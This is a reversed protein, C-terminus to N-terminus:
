WRLTDGSVRPSLKEYVKANYCNVWDIEKESLLDPDIMKKQIPVFTLPEFGLYKKDNFHNPTEKPVVLLLNEIRIGFSGDEYFGPENSVIMNEVLATPNHRPSIGQPGEHVNLCAGVGTRRTFILLILLM